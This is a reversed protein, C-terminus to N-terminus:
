SKQRGPRGVPEAAVQKQKVSTGLVRVKFLIGDAEMRHQLNELEAPAMQPPEHSIDVLVRELEDLVGAMATDGKQLATQRYLRNESALDAAREQEASIDLKEASSAHSLEILVMQSRDLLDGVAVLLVREGAQKDATNAATQVPASKPGVRPFMRGAMFAVVVLSAMAAVAGAWRWSGEPIWWRRRSPLQREIRRWVEGGYEEGRAPVPLSDVVNLVRQLSGYHARCEDCQDLHQGASFADPEEGYYHLVLEEESLHNIM